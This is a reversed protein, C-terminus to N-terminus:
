SIPRVSTFLEAVEAQIQLSTKRETIVTGNVLDVHLGLKDPLDFRVWWYDGEGAVLVPFPSDIVGKHRGTLGVTYVPAGYYLHPILYYPEDWPVCYSHSELFKGYLIDELAQRAEMVKPDFAFGENIQNLKETDDWVSNGVGRPLEGKTLPRTELARALNDMITGNPYLEWALTRDSPQLYSSLAHEDMSKHETKTRDTPDRYMCWYTYKHNTADWYGATTIQIIKKTDWHKVIQGQKFQPEFYVAGGRNTTTPWNSTAPVTVPASVKPIYPFVVEQNAEFFRCFKATQKLVTTMNARSWDSHNDEYAIGWNIGCVGLFGLEAIDSFAGQTYATFGAAKVAAEVLKNYYQYHVVDTGMRDPEFMWRYERYQNDKELPPEFLRASSKGTEEGTTLLIDYDFFHPLVDLLLFVGLRDDLWRSLVWEDGKINIRGFHPKEGTADLHAVALIKAGKDIFLYPNDVGKNKPDRYVSGNPLKSVMAEIAATSCTLRNELLKWQHLRPAIAESWQDLEMNLEKRKQKKSM